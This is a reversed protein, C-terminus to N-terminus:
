SGLSASLARGVLIVTVYFMYALGKWVINADITNGFLAFGPSHTLHREQAFSMFESFEGAPCWTPGGPVIARKRKMTLLVQEFGKTIWVGQKMTHFWFTFSGLLCYIALSVSVVVDVESLKDAVLFIEFSGVSIFIAVGITMAAVSHRERRSVLKIERALVLYRQKATHFSSRGSVMNLIQRSTGM